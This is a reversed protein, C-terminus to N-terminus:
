VIRKRDRLHRGVTENTMGVTKRAAPPCPAIREIEAIVVLFPPAWDGVVAAQEFLDAEFSKLSSQAPERDQSLAVGEPL